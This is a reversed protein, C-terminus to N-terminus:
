RDEGEREELLAELRRAAEMGWRDLPRRRLRAILEADNLEEPRTPEPREGREQDRMERM